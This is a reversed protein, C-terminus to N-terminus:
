MTSVLWAAYERESFILIRASLDSLFSQGWFFPLETQPYSRESVSQVM